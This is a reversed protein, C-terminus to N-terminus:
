FKLITLIQIHVPLTRSDNKLDSLKCLVFELGKRSTLIERLRLCANGLNAKLEILNIMNLPEYFGNCTKFIM